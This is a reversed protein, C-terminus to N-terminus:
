PWIEFRVKGSRSDVPLEYDTSMIKAIGSLGVHRGLQLTSIAVVLDHIEDTTLGYRNVLMDNSSVQSYNIAKDESQFVYKLSDHEIVKGVTSNFRTRLADWIHNSPENSWGRVVGGVFAEMRLDMSMSNFTDQDVALNVAKLDDEISGLARLVCGLNVAPVWKSGCRVPSRKLFQIKEFKLGGESLDSITVSHGVLAAGKVISEKVSYGQTIYYLMGLSNAYNGFNNLTTTLVTGSGEFPGDFKVQVRQNKDEPNVLWIPRLCQKILGFARPEHFNRMALFTSLFAPLDQASDNSSIDVNFAFSEGGINGTVCSDDSYIAACVTNEMTLADFLLTFIEEMSDTKPKSMIFAILTIGEHVVTHLGHMCVKVFEPLESAYMCGRGYSVFLRPRKGFKALERKICAELSKVMLDENNHILQQNVYAERLKKKVHVIQCAMTRPFVASLSTAFAEYIKYYAWHKANSMNDVMKTLSSPTISDALSVLHHAIFKHGSRSPPIHRGGVLEKFCLEIDIYPECRTKECLIEKGLGLANGRYFSEISYDGDTRAGILRKLASNYNTATPSFTQFPDQRLGAFSFFQTRPWQRKTPGSVFRIDSVSQPPIIFGSTKTIRVDDRCEFDDFSDEVSSVKMACYTDVSGLDNVLNPLIGGDLGIAEGNKTVKKIMHSNSTDMDFFDIQTLFFALTSSLYGKYIGSLQYSNVRATAGRKINLSISDVAYNRQLDALVPVLIDYSCSPSSLMRKHLDPYRYGFSREERFISVPNWTLVNKSIDHDVVCFGIGMRKCKVSTNRLPQPGELFTVGDWYLHHGNSNPAFFYEEKPGKEEEDLL